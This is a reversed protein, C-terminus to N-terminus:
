ASDLAKEMGSLARAFASPSPYFCARTKMFEVFAAQKKAAVIRGEIFNKWTTPKAVRAIEMAADLDEAARRERAATTPGVANLTAMWAIYHYCYQHRSYNSRQGPSGGGRHSAKGGAAKELHVFSPQLATEGTWMSVLSVSSKHQGFQKLYFRPEYAFKFEKKQKYKVTKTTETKVNTFDREHLPVVLPPAASGDAATEMSNLSADPASLSTAPPPMSQPRKLLLLVEDLKEHSLKVEATLEANRGVLHAYMHHNRTDDEVMQALSQQRRTIEAAVKGRFDLFEAWYAGGVKFPSSDMTFIFLEPHQDYLWIANCTFLIALTLLGALHLKRGMGPKERDEGALDATSVTEQVVNPYAAWVQQIAPIIKLEKALEFGARVYIDPPETVVSTLFGPGHNSSMMELPFNSGRGYIISVAAAGTAQQHNFKQNTQELLRGEAQDEIRQHSYIRLLHTAYGGAESPHMKEEGNALLLLILERHKEATVEGGDYTFLKKLLDGRDSASGMPSPFRDERLVLSRFFNLLPLLNHFSMEAFYNPMLDIWGGTDGRCNKINEFFLKAVMATDRGRGLGRERKMEGMVQGQRSVSRINVSRGATQAGVTVLNAGLIMEQAHKAWEPTPRGSPLSAAKFMAPFM